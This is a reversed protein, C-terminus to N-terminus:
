GGTDIVVQVELADELLDKRADATYAELSVDNDDHCLAITLTGNHHSAHLERVAGTRTRDLAVGLLLM